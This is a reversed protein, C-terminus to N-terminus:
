KMKCLVPADTCDGVQGEKETGRYVGGM